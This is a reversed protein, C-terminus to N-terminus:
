ILYRARTKQGCFRRTPEFYGAQSLKGYSSVDRVLRRNSSASLWGTFIHWQIEEGEGLDM